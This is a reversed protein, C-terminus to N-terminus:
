LASWITQQQQGHMTLPSSEATTRKKARPSGSRQVQGEFKPSIKKVNYRVALYGLIITRRKTRQFNDHLCVYQCVHQCVRQCFFCGDRKAVSRRHTIISFALTYFSKTTKQKFTSCSHSFIIVLLVNEFNTDSTCCSPCSTLM